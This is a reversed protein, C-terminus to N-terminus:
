GKGQYDPLVVMRQLRLFNTGTPVMTEELSDAFDSVEILRKLAGFGVRFPIWLIGSAIKQYLSINATEKDCLMFFCCLRPPSTSKDIGCYCVDPDREHLIAINREFLFELEFRRVEADSGYIYSFLPNDIFAATALVAADHIFEVPLSRVEVSELDFTAVSTM